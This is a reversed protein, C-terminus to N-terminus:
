ASRRATTAGGGEGQNGVETGGAFEYPSNGDFTDKLSFGDKLGAALAFPKFTSGPRAASGPGTSSARSTTRAPTSAM